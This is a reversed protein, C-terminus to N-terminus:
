DSGQQRDDQEGAGDLSQGGCEFAPQGTDGAHQRTSRATDHLDNFQVRRRRHLDSARNSLLRAYRQGEAM